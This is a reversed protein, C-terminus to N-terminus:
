GEKAGLVLGKERERRMMWSRVSERFGVKDYMYTSTRITSAKAVARTRRSPSLGSLHSVVNTHCTAIARLLGTSDGCAPDPACALSFAPACARV